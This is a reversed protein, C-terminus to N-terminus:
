NYQNNLDENLNIEPENLPSKLIEEEKLTKRYKVIIYILLFITIIGSSFFLAILIDYFLPRTQNKSLIVLYIGYYIDIFICFIQVCYRYVKQWLM